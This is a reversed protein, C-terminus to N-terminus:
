CHPLGAPIEVTFKAPDIQPNITREGWEVVLDAQQVASKFQTKSPLRHKAGAADDVDNFDGNKVSWVTKGAPDKLESEIVDLRGNRLDVTITQTGSSSSLSLKEYEGSYTTTGKADPLIPPTGLALTLFDDPELELHLMTAISSRDCPGTLQCNHQKDVFAFNTGDCAMDVLVDGGAPSLANFRVRKGATGMVLVDGKVRDKGLWYDMKSAATFSTNATRQAGLKALIDEVKPDAYPRAKGTGGGSPCAALVLVLPLFRKM